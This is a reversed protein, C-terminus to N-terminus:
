GEVVVVRRVETSEKGHQDTWSFSLEGSHSATFFFSLFPNAAVGPGFDAEFVPVGSFACRFRTIINRPRPEGMSNMRFGSEMPHSVLTKIEVAEGRRMETPVAIRVKLATV